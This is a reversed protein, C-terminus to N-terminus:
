WGTLRRDSRAEEEAQSNYTEPPMSREHAYAGKMLQDLEDRKITEQLELQEKKRRRIEEKLHEMWQERALPDKIGANDLARFYSKAGTLQDRGPAQWHEVEKALRDLLQQDRPSLTDRSVPPKNSNAM